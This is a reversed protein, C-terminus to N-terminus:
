VSMPQGSNPAWDSLWALYFGDYAATAQLRTAWRFSQRCLDDDAEIIQVNLALAIDLAAEAEAQTLQKLQFLKHLASTVENRWLSPAYIEKAQAQWSAWAARASENLPADTVTCVGIGADIVVAPASLPPM